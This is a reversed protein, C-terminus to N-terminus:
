IGHSDLSHAFTNKHIVSYLLLVAVQEFFLTRVVGADARSNDVNCVHVAFLRGSQPEQAVM